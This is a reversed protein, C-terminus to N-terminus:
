CGIWVTRCLRKVLHQAQSLHNIVFRTSLRKLALVSYSKHSLITYLTITERIRIALHQRLWVLVAITVVTLRDCM